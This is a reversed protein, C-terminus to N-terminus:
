FDEEILNIDYNKLLDIKAKETKATYHHIVYVDDNVEPIRQFLKHPLLGVKLVGGFGTLIETFCRFQKDNTKLSYEDNSNDFNWDITDHLICNLAKQDDNGYEGINNVIESLLKIVKHNSKYYVLGCCLVFGWKKHVEQPFYTGQSFLIDHQSKEFYSPIPNNIWFADADSHVVNLGFELISKLINTRFAWLQEVPGSYESLYTHYGKQKLLDYLEKDLSVVLYNRIDLREVLKLWALIVKKYQYNGFVVIVTNNDDKLKHLMLDLSQEKYNMESFTSPECLEKFLLDWENMWGYVVGEPAHKNFYSLFTVQAKKLKEKTNRWDTDSHKAITNKVIEACEQLIEDLEHLRAEDIPNDTESTITEQEPCPLLDCVSSKDSDYGLAYMTEYNMIWFLAHRGRDLIDEWSKKQGKRFFDANISNLLNFSIVDTRLPAIGLFESIDLIARRFDSVMDEFKLFLIKDGPHEMWASKHKDWPGVHEAFAGGFGETCLLLDLADKESLDSSSYKAHYSAYSRLAARGDRYIYISKDHKFGTHYTSHTKILTTKPYDFRIYKLNDFADPQLDIVNKGMFSWDMDEHGVIEAVEPIKGIDRKDNYISYSKIGFNYNLIIRLLTNGSRPYSTLWVINSEDSYINAKANEYLREFVGYLDQEEGPMDKCHFSRVEPSINKSVILNLREVNYPPVSPYSLGFNDSIRRLVIVTQHVLEDFTIAICNHCNYISLNERYYFLWLKHGDDLSYGSNQELSKAVEWPHRIIQIFKSEIGMEEIVELWLPMVLCMTPNGLVSTDTNQKIETLLKKIRIKASKAAETVQWNHPLQGPTYPNFGIDDFFAKLISDAEDVESGGSEVQKPTNLGLSNLAEKLLGVGSRPAGLIIILQQKKIM